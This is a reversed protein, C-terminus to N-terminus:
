NTKVPSLSCFQESLSPPLMPISRQVLYVTTAQKLAKRDLATGPKVFHAVDALYVGVEYTGDDNKPIHLADDLDRATAGDITFVIQNRFDRRVEYAREQITWPATTLMSWM